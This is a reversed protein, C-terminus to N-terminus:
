WYHTLLLTFGHTQQQFDRRTTFVYDVSIQWQRHFLWSANLGVPVHVYYSAEVLQGFLSIGTGKGLVLRATPSLSWTDSLQIVPSLGLVIRGGFAQNGGGSRFIPNFTLSTALAVDDTFLHRYYGSLGVGVLVSDSGFGFESLALRVGVTDIEDHHIQHRVGFPIGIGEITWTDSVSYEWGLPIPFPIGRLRVSNKDVGVSAVGYTTWSGVNEPLTYPRDIHRIPYRDLAPDATCGGLTM